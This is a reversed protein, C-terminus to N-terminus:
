DKKKPPTTGAARGLSLFSASRRSTHATLWRECIRQIPVPNLYNWRHRGERRVLLLNAQELVDLHKMVATRCLDPFVACLEGTTRPGQELTDLVKRRTPDALARWVADDDMGLSMDSMPSM